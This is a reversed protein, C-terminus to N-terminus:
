ETYHKKMEKIFAEEAADLSLQVSKKIDDGNQNILFNFLGERYSEVLIIKVDIKNEENNIKSSNIIASGLGKRSVIVKTKGIIEKAIKILEVAVKKMDSAKKVVGWAMQHCKADDHKKSYCSNFVSVWQRKKKDSLNKLKAPPHSKDYPM